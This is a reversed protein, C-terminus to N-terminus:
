GICTKFWKPGSCVVEELHSDRVFGLGLTLIHRVGDNTGAFSSRGLVPILYYTLYFSAGGAKLDLIQVM